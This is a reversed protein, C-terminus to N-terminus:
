QTKARRAGPNQRVDSASTGNEGLIPTINDHEPTTQGLVKALASTGKRKSETHVHIYIKRTTDRSRHGLIDQVISEEVGNMAMATASAHRLGHPTIEPLGARDAIARLADRISRSGVPSVIAGFVRDDTRPVQALADLVWPALTVVRGDTGSKTRNELVIRGQDDEAATRHLWVTGNEIDVDRWQVAIAEGIRCATGVMFAWIPYRPDDAVAALFRQLHLPTWTVRETAVKVPLVVGACPNERIHGDAIAAAFMTRFGMAYMEITSAAMGADSMGDVVRQIDARRASQLRITGLSPKAHTNWATRLIRSRGASCQRSHRAHWIAFYEGCTLTTPDIMDGRAVEMRRDLLWSEAEAARKFTKGIHRRDRVPGYSLRARYTVAGTRESVVPHVGEPLLKGTQPDRRRAM